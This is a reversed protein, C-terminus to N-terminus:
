PSCVNHLCHPGDIPRPECGKGAECVASWWGCAIIVHVLADVVRVRWGATTPFVLVVAPAELKEGPKVVRGKPKIVSLDRPVFPNPGPLKLAPIVPPECWEKEQSALNEVQPKATFSHFTSSIVCPDGGVTSPSFTAPSDHAVIIIICAGHLGNAGHLAEFSMEGVLERSAGAVTVCACMCMKHKKSAHQIEM